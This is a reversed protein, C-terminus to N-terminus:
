ITDEEIHSIEEDKKDDLAIIINSIGIFTDASIEKGSKLIGYIRDVIIEKAEKIKDKM